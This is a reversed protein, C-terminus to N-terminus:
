RDIFEDLHQDLGHHDHQGDAEDAQPQVPPRAEMGQPLAPSKIYAGAQDHADGNRQHQAHGKQGHPVPAYAQVLDRQARQDNRQAQQHVVGDNGHLHHHALHFLAIVLHSGGGKGILDGGHGHQGARQDRRHAKQRNAQGFGGGAFVGKRNKGHGHDRQHQAPDDRHVEHGVQARQQELRRRAAGLRRRGGQPAALFVCHRAHPHVYQRRMHLLHGAPLVARVLHEVAREVVDKAFRHVPAHLVAPDRYAAGHQHERQANDAHALHLLLEEGVGAAGFDHHVDPEGLAGRKGGILGGGLADLLAQHLLRAHGRDAGPHARTHRAKVQRQILHERLGIHRLQDHQGFIQLQALGQADLERGQQRGLEGLHAAPDLEQGIAGGHRIRHLKAHHAYVRQRQALTGVLDLRCHAFAGVRTADVVVPVLRDFRELELDVLVLRARDADAAM